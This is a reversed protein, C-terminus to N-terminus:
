TSRVKALVVRGDGGSDSLGSDGSGLCSGGGLYCSSLANNSTWIQRSSSKDIKEPLGFNNTKSFKEGSKWNLCEQTSYISKDTLNFNLNSDLELDRLNFWIPFDKEKIGKQKLQNFLYNAQESNDNKLNRLALASDNYTDKTFELDQELDLQTALRYEKMHKKCFMDIATAIYTNSQKMVGNNFTLPNNLNPHEKKLYQTIEKYLAEDTVYTLDGTPQIIQSEVKKELDKKPTEKQNIIKEYAKKGDKGMFTTPFKFNM